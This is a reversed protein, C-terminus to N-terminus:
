NARVVCLCTWDTTYAPSCREKRSQWEKVASNTGVTIVSRTYKDQLENMLEHVTNTVHKQPTPNTIAGTTFLTQNVYKEPVLGGVMVGVKKYEAVSSYYVDVVELLREILVSITRTPAKLTVPISQYKKGTSSRKEEVHLVLKSALLGQRDLDSVVAHLHYLIASILVSKKTVVFGFSRSSMISQPAKKNPQLHYVIRGKLELQLRRATVGGITDLAQPPADLLDKVTFLSNKRYREMLKRGVGWVDSLSVESAYREWWDGDCVFVGGEAWKAKVSAYKAQTKTQGIGISVPVGTQQMIKTRLTGAQNIIDSISEGSIHVFAEDISYQEFIAFESKVVSFVRRSFDQYLPFNSSFLTIANDKIIDKIQFAPIGMPVGIDKVEQSRAVVCGDNSSLVMVPKGVLDPRFVRECSVFFNNCDIVAIFELNM